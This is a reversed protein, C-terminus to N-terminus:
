QSRGDAASLGPEPGLCARLFPEYSVSRDLARAAFELIRGGWGPDVLWRDHVSRLALELSGADGAEYSFGLGNDLIMEASEGPLSNVVPLGALLYDNLKYSYAVNGGARFCNLGVQARKLYGVLTAHPLRGSVWGNPVQSGIRERLEVEREGAGLLMLGAGPVISSFQSFAQLVCDLDYNRGLTGAYAVLVRAGAVEPPLSEAPPVRRYYGLDGGLYIPAARSHGASSRVSDARLAYRVSEAFVHDARRYAFDALGKWFCFPVSRWGKLTGIGLLSEPWTDHVDLISVAGMARAFVMAIAAGGNHPLAALIADPKGSRLAERALVFPLSLDFVAHSLVRRHSVNAAYGPEFVEVCRWPPHRPERPRKLHHDFRSVFQTVSAGRRVLEACVYAYRDASEPPPISAFPSVVWVLRQTM